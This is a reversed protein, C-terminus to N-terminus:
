FFYLGDKAMRYNEDTFKEGAVPMGKVAIEM